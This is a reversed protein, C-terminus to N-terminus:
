AKVQKMNKNYVYLILVNRHKKEPIALEVYNFQYGFNHDEFIKLIEGLCDQGPDVMHHHYELIIQKVLPLKGSQALERLVMNEAGEIDIKLLDVPGDIYRSLPTAEIELAHAQFHKNGSGQVSWGGHAVNSKNVYFPIKGEKDHLAKNYVITESLQNETVNKELIQFTEPCIEFAIIRAKPYLAKFYLTALGINSGCDIIFPKESDAQFAYVEECFIENFMAMMTGYNIFFLTFHLLKDQVIKGQTIGRMFELRVCYWFLYTSYNKFLGFSSVRSSKRRRLVIAKLFYVFDYIMFGLAPYKKTLLYMVLVVFVFIFCIIGLFM